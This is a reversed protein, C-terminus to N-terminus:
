ANRAESPQAVASLEITREIRTGKWEVAVRRAKVTLEPATQRRRPASHSSKPTITAPNCAQCRHLDGNDDTTFGAGGCTACPEKYDETPM